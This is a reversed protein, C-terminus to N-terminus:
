QAASGAPSAKLRRVLAPTIDLGQDQYIVQSNALVLTYGHQQAYARVVGIVAHQVKNFLESRRTNFADQLSSQQQEFAEVKERLDLEAQAVQDKTMTAENRQLTAQKAKLSTAEDQLAKQKPLFQARLADIAQKYQPSAQVLAGYDVVGIKAAAAQASATTLGACAAAAAIMVVISSSRSLRKM